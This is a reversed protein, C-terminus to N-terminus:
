AAAGSDKDDVHWRFPWCGSEEPKESQCIGAVSACRDDINAGNGTFRSCQSSKLFTGGNGDSIRDGSRPRPWHGTCGARRDGATRCRVSVLRPGTAASIRISVSQRGVCFFLATKRRQKKGNLLAGARLPGGPDYFGRRRRRVARGAPPQLDGASRGGDGKM